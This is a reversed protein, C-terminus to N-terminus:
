PSTRKSAFAQGLVRGFGQAAGAILVAEDKFDFM